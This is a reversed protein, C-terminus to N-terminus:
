IREIRQQKNKATYPTMYDIDILNSHINAGILYVNLLNKALSDDKAVTIDKDEVYGKALITNSMQSMAAMADAKPRAFEDMTYDLGMIALSEFERDSEKGGKDEGTLLGTKMDRKEINMATSNKKTIMQKMRKLHIYIVLCEQTEVPEGNKNVYVYPLKVKELLPKGLIKFADIIEYMKPEIKFVEEHFRFPLRRKCFEMFDNDSMTSFLKRYYDSNTKTKDVADYIKYILEEAQERKENM